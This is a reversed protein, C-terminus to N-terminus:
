FNYYFITIYLIFYKNFKYKNNFNKLQFDVKQNLQPKYVVNNPKILSNQILKKTNVNISIYKKNNINFRNFGINKKEDEKIKNVNYNSLNVHSVSKLLDSIKGNIIDRPSQLKPPPSNLYPYFKKNLVSNSNSKKYDAKGLIPLILNSKNQNYNQVYTRKSNKLTSKAKQEQIAKKFKNNDFQKEITGNLAYKISNFFFNNNKLSANNLYNINKNQFSSCPPQYIPHPPQNSSVISPPIIINIDNYSLKNTNPTNTTKTMINNHM